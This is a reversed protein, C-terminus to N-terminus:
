LFERITKEVGESLNKTGFFGETLEERKDRKATCIEKLPKLLVENVRTLGCGECIEMLEDIKKTVKMGTFKNASVIAGLRSLIEKLIASVYEKHKEEIQSRLAELGRKHKERVDKAFFDDAEVSYGFDVPVAAMSFNGISFDETDLIRPDLGYSMLLQKIRLFYNGAKFEEIEDRIKGLTEKNIRDVAELLLPAMGKPLFYVRRPGIQEVCFCTSPVLDIYVYSRLNKLINSYKSPLPSFRLNRRRDDVSVRRYRARLSRGKMLETRVSHEEDISNLLDQLDEVLKQYEDWKLQSTDVEVELRSENVTHISLLFGQLNNM